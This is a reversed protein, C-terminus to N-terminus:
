FHVPIAKGKVMRILNPLANYLSPKIDQV